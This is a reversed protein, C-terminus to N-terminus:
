CITLIQLTDLIKKRRKAEKKLTETENIKIGGFLVKACPALGQTETRSQGERRARCAWNTVFPPWPQGMTPNPTTEKTQLMLLARWLWKMLSSLFDTCLNFVPVTSSCFAPERSVHYRSVCLVPLAVILLPPPTWSNAGNKRNTEFNMKAFPMCLM